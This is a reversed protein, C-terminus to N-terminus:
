KRREIEIRPWGFLRADFSYSGPGVLMLVLSLGGAMASLGDLPLGLWGFSILLFSGALVGAIRTALGAIILVGLLPLIAGSWTPGMDRPLDYLLSYGSRGLALATIVRLLFLGM